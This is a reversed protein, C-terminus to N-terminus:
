DNSAGDAFGFAFGLVTLVVPVGSIVIPAVIPTPDLALIGGIGLGGFFGVTAGISGHLMGRLYDQVNRTRGSNPM